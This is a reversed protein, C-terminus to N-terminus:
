LLTLTLDGSREINANSQLRDGALLNGSVKEVTFCKLWNKNKIHAVQIYLTDVFFSSFM